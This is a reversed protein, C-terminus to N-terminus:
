DEDGELDAERVEGWGMGWGSGGVRDEPPHQKKSCIHRVTMLYSKYTPKRSSQSESM